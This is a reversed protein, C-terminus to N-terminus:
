KGSDRGEREREREREKESDRERERHHTNQHPTAMASPNDATSRLPVAIKALIAKTAGELRVDERTLSEGREREGGRERETERDRETEPRM